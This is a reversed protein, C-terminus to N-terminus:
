SDGSASNALAFPFVKECGVEMLKFGCVTLTWGSDIIDDILLINEPMILANNKIVNFSKLANECQYSSNQMSKQFDAPTKQLLVLLKLNLRNALRKAFDEVIGSRLSPVFTISDIRNKEVFDKLESVSKGLLEDCFRTAKSYKDNKVLTGYGPDGYKTLCFGIENQPNIRTQKTLSTTAWQKRPEIPIILKEFYNQAKDLYEPAIVSAFEEYGLCNKCKGCSTATFDDLCNVIFKSYCEKTQSMEDMKEQEQRRIATIADYYNQNYEFKKLSLFYKKTEKYVYGENLLFMLAKEIRSRRSNIQAAIESLTFGNKTDKAICEIVREAEERKPFATDIFYDQIKKDEYGCLLFTYARPINRGARGIQQYYSVINSPQQFHIIFAVDGKDYGMGLKVTAVIAKIKNEKFLQEAERNLNDDAQERSYYPRVNAGNQQLFDALYDCDRRTLCYIIGSGSLKNLNQLIWAYREANSPINLVQISLSDRGLPGRSVYVNDGLQVRLDDVVRNNATATTGLLPVTQPLKKIVRNLQTYELRFDHGWDSICHAEDIVFFGIRIKNLNEQFTDSLLSEPTVLLLDLSDTKLSQLIDEKRDRVTSNLVDCKLGMKRAAEIQNEMLVLLPSVIVSVGHGADRFLRTCIFYVLSKGWGTKQVVLTRKNLMTTEIAEYQGERFTADAGYIQTLISSAKAYIEKNEITPTNGANMNGIESQSETTGIESQSETTSIDSKNIQQPNNVQLKYSTVQLEEDFEGIDKAGYKILDNDLCFTPKAVTNVILRNKQYDNLFDSNIVIVAESQSYLLDILWNIGIQQPYFTSTSLGMSFILLQNNRIAYIIERHKIMEILSGTTILIQPLQPYETFHRTISVLGYDNIKSLVNNLKIQETNQLVRNGILGVSKRDLLAINGAYYFLPPSKKGLSMKIAKPYHEDARTVINIGMNAYKNIEFSISSSRNILNKIRFIDNQSFNLIDRFDTDTFSLLQYPQIRKELLKDAIDTWEKATYPQMKNGLCLHSCFIIIAKSNNNM